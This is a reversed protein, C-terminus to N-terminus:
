SEQLLCVNKIRLHHCCIITNQKLCKEFCAIGSHYIINHNKLLIYMFNGPNEEPCAGCSKACNASMWDGCSGGAAWKDCGEETFYFNGCDAFYICYMCFHMIKYSLPGKLFSVITM